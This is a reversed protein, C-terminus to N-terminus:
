FFFLAAIGIAKQPNTILTLISTVVASGSLPVIINVFSTFALYIGILIQELYEM